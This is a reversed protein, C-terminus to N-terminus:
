MQVIEDPDKNACLKDLEDIMLMRLDAVTRIHEIKKNCFLRKNAEDIYKQLVNKGIKM